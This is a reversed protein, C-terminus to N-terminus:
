RSNGFFVFKVNAKLWIYMYIYICVLAIDDMFQVSLTPCMNPFLAISKVWSRECTKPRSMASRCPFTQPQGPSRLRRQRSQQLSRSLAFQHLLLCVRHAQQAFQQTPLHIFDSDPLWTDSNQRPQPKNAHWKSSLPLELVLGWLKHRRKLSFASGFNLNSHRSKLYAVKGEGMPNENPAWHLSGSLSESNCQKYRRVEM